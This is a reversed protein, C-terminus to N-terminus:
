KFRNIIKVREHYMDEVEIQGHNGLRTPKLDLNQFHKVFGQRVSVEIFSCENIHHGIQHYYACCPSNPRPVKNV